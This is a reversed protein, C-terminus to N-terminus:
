SVGGMAALGAANILEGVGYLVVANYPYHEKALIDDANATASFMTLCVVVLLTGSLM